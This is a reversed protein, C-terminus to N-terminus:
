IVESPEILAEKHPKEEERKGPNFHDYIENHRTNFQKCEEVMASISKVDAALRNTLSDILGVTSECMTAEILKTESDGLSLDSMFPQIFETWARQTNCRLKDSDYEKGAEEMFIEYLKQKFSLGLMETALINQEERQKQQERHITGILALTALNPMGFGDQHRHRRHSSRRTVEERGKLTKKLFAVRDKEAFEHAEDHNKCVRGIGEVQRSQRKTVSKACLACEITKVPM